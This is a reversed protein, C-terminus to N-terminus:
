EYKLTEAPNILSAKIAHCSVTLLAILLGAVMSIVFLEWGMDIKFKFDALWQNMIYWSAPAALVFAILALLIYQKNLV